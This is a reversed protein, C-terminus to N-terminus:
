GEETAMPWVAPLLDGPAQSGRANVAVVIALPASRWRTLTTRPCTPTKTTCRCGSMGRLKEQLLRAWHHHAYGLLETAGNM